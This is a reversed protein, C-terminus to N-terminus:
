NVFKDVADKLWPIYKPFYECELGLKISIKDKYKERLATLTDIYDQADKVQVKWSTQHNNPFLFPVHDSFGMIKIGNEIAREIYEEETGSAHGCRFTHTHYNAIM